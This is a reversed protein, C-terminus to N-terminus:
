NGLVVIFFSIVAPAIFAWLTMPDGTYLIGVIAAVASAVWMAGFAIGGGITMKMDDEKTTDIRTMM